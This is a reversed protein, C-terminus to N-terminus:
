PVDVYFRLDDDKEGGRLTLTIQWKGSMFMSLDSVVYSDGDRTVVAGETGHGHAPMFASASVISGARPSLVAARIKNKGAKLGETAVQVHYAGTNSVLEQPKKEAVEATTDEAGCGLLAGLAATSFCFAAVFGARVKM